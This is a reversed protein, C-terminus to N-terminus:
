FEKLERKELKVNEADKKLKEEYGKKQSEINYKM